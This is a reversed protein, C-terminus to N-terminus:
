DTATMPSRLQLCRGRFRPASTSRISAPVADPDCWGPPEANIGSACNRRVRKDSGPLTLHESCREHSKCNRTGSMMRLSLALSHRGHRGGGTGISAPRGSRRTCCCRAIPPPGLSRSSKPSLTRTMRVVAQGPDAPCSACRSCWRLSNSASCPPAANWRYHCPQGPCWGRKGAACSGDRRRGTRSRPRDAQTRGHGSGTM